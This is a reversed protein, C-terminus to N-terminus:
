PQEETPTFSQNWMQVTQLVLNVSVQFLVALDSGATIVHEVTVLLNDEVIGAKVCNLQLTFDNCRQLRLVLDDPVQDGIRWQGFVRLVSLDGDQCRCFMKQGEIEFAVDGDEDIAPAVGLDQIVDLVRGRLPHEDPPPPFNPLAAPDTM